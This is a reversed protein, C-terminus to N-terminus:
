KGICFRSFIIDLVEDSATEGTILGIAELALRLDAAVFEDSLGDAAAAGARDIAAQAEGLADVHRAAGIMPTEMSTAGGTLAAALASELESVGGDLACTRALPADGAFALLHEDDVAPLLDTKNVVILAPSLVEDRIARDAEELAQSGDIVVLALDARGLEARARDVGLRELREADSRIGATDFLRVPVGAIEIADEVVDRTTGPWPSVLVRESKVLANMLTSKGVNPRGVIVVRAGERYRRGVRSEDLLEALGTSCSELRRVLDAFSIAVVDEEDSFDIGAELLALLEVLESRMLGIRESLGGGLQAAAMRLACETEGAILDAVAEAQALDIKGSLFARRTFEGPEAARAGEALAAALAAGLPVPGGHCHFEVVDEGTYSAPARMVLCLVEDLRRGDREIWGHAWTGGKMERPDRAGAFLRAAIALAEPGSLRVIGIAGRGPATAVAAIVDNTQVKDTM